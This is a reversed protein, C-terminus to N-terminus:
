ERARRRPVRATRLRDRRASPGLHLARGAPAVVLLHQRARIRAGRADRRAEGQTGPEGDRLAGLPPRRPVRRHDRRGAHEPGRRVPARRHPRVAGALLRHPIRPPGGARLDEVALLSVGAATRRRPCLACPGERRRLPCRRLLQGGGRHLPAGPRHAPAGPAAERPMVHGTPNQYSALVYIFRPLRGASRLRELTSALADTRMGRGDVPVGVMEIGLGRYARITGSYCYEEMVVVDDHGECLAEAALTM